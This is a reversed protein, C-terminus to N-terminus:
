NTNIDGCWRFCRNGLSKVEIPITNGYKNRDEETYEINKCENMEKKEELYRSYSVDYWIIQKIIRGDEFIENEKNYIHFTEINPFLKRSHQNLPIPNFHFREMNGRFRKVGMELNILDNIDKFYKSVIKIENCRLHM